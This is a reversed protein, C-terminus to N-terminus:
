KASNSTTLVNANPYNKLGIVLKTARIQAKEIAKIDM